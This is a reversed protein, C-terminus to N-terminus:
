RVTHLPIGVLSQPQMYILTEGGKDRCSGEASFHSITANAPGLRYRANLFKLAVPQDQTNWAFLYQSHAGILIAAHGTTDLQIVLPNILAIQEAVKQIERYVPKPTGDTSLLGLLGRGWKQDQFEWYMVTGVGEGYTRLLDRAVLVAYAQTMAISNPVRNGTNMEPEVHDLYPRALGFESVWIDRSLKSTPLSRLFSNLAALHDRNAKDDWMHLSLADVAKEIAPGMGPEALYKLSGAATSVGPGIVRPLNVQRRAAEARIQEVMALYDVPAIGINWSGDPENSLEVSGIPVGKEILYRLNAVHFRAALAVNRSALVRWKDRGSEGPMPPPEWVILSLEAGTRQTATQLVHLTQQISPDAGYASEVYRDLDADTMSPGLEHRHRWSAGIAVRLHAPHLAQLLNLHNPSLLESNPWIHVGFKPPAPRPVAPAQLTQCCEIVAVPCIAQDQANASWAPLSM